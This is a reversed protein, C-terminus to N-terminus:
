DVDQRSPEKDAPDMGKSSRGLKAPVGWVRAANPVDRIVCSGAGVLAREGITVRPIITAGAGICALRGITVNGAITCGPAVHIGEGFWCDHDISSRTNIVAFDDIRTEANIVVGAMIAVGRGITASGSVVAAPSVANVIDYGIQRLHHGIRVRRANDGIGVFAKNIGKKRLHLLDNDTGIVPVGLVSSRIPNREILGAIEFDGAAQFLEIIVKAHGGAGIIMIPSTNSMSRGRDESPLCALTGSTGSVTESRPVDAVALNESAPHMERPYHGSALSRGVVDGQPAARSCSSARM